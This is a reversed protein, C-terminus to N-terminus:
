ILYRQQISSLHKDNGKHTKRNLTMILTLAMEAVAYPSYSPVRLIRFNLDSARKLDINNYGACRMAIIKINYSHLIELVRASLIDNVFCCVAMSGQALLATTENLPSKIYQFNLDQNSAALALGFAKADYSRSSFFAIKHPM